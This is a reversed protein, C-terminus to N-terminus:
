VLNKVFELAAWDNIESKSGDDLALGIQYSMTPDDAIVFDDMEKGGAHDGFGASVPRIVEAGLGQLLDKLHGTQSRSGADFIWLLELGSRNVPTWSAEKYGDEGITLELLEQQISDQLSGKGIARDLVLTVTKYDTGDLRLSALVKPPNGEPATVAATASTSGHTVVLSDKECRIAYSVYRDSSFYLFFAWVDKGMMKLHLAPARITGELNGRVFGSCPFLQPSREGLTIEISEGGSGFETSHWQMPTEGVLTTRAEWQGTRGSALKHLFYYQAYGEGVSAKKLNLKNNRNKLSIM